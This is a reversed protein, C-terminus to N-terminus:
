QEAPEPEPGRPKIGLDTLQRWYIAALMAVHDYQQAAVSAKLEAQDARHALHVNTAQLEGNRRALDTHERRCREVEANASKLLTDRVEALHLADATQRDADRVAAQARDIAAIDRRIIQPRRM